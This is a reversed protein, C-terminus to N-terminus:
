AAPVLRRLYPRHAAGHGHQEPTPRLPPLTGATAGPCVPQRLADDEITTAHGGPGWDPPRYNASQRESGNEAACCPNRATGAVKGTATQRRIDDWSGSFSGSYIWEQGDGDGTVALGSAVIVGSFHVVM